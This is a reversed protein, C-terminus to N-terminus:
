ERVSGFEPLWKFIRSDDVPDAIRAEPTRGLLTTVNDRTTLRWYLDGDPHIIKEIRSFDGEIRPRYRRVKFSGQQSPKLAEWNGSSNKELYPVLDEAGAYLFVDDDDNYSPLQKDTKRQISPLNLNWGLGFPSNGAGSNYSLSLSPTFNNRGPSLPLPISFSATGNPANVEFKEDIGRLAGGGKPLSIQPIQIANSETSKEQVLDNLKRPQDPAKNPEKQHNYPSM